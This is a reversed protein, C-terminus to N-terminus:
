TAPLSLETSHPSLSWLGVVKIACKRPVTVTPNLTDPRAKKNIPYGGYGSKASDPSNSDRDEDGTQHSPDEQQRKEPAPMKFFVSVSNNTEFLM